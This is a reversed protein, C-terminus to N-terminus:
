LGGSAKLQRVRQEIRERDPFDPNSRLLEEWAAIGGKIDKKGDLLVIGKNFLAQPFNPRYKLVNDFVALAADPQGLFHYCTGMDTEVNPDQPRLQLSEKYADLAKQYQGLDYYSNGIQVKYDANNPDKRSLEELEQLKGAIDLPPHGEPLKMGRDTGPATAQAELVAPQDRNLYMSIAATAGLLVVISGLLFDVRNKLM